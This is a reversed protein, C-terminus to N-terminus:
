FYIELNAGLYGIISLYKAPIKIYNESQELNFNCVFLIEYKKSLGQIQKRVPYLRKLIDEIHESLNRHGELTSNLQWSITGDLDNSRIRDPKINLIKTIENPDLGRGSILFIVWNKM